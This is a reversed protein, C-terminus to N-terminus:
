YFHRAGTLLCRRQSALAPKPFDASIVRHLVGLTLPNARPEGWMESSRSQGPRSHRGTFKTGSGQFCNQSSDPQLSHQASRLFGDASHWSLARQERALRGEGQGSRRCQKCRWFPRGPDGPSVGFRPLAGKRAKPNEARGPLRSYCSLGQARQGAGTAQAAGRTGPLNAHLEKLGPPLFRNRAAAFSGRRRM